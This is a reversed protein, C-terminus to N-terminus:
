GSSVEETPCAKTCSSNCGDVEAKSVPDNDPVLDLVSGGSLVGFHLHSGTSYGTQDMKGVPTTPTVPDGVSVPINRLMHAFIITYTGGNSAKGSVKVYNGYGGGCDNAPDNEDATGSNDECSTNVETVTGDVMAYVTPNGSSAIDIGNEDKGSNHSGCSPRPGQTIRGDTPWKCDGVCPKFSCVPATPTANCDTPTGEGIGKGGQQSVLSGRRVQTTGWTALFPIAFALSIILTTGGLFYNTLFPDKYNGGGVSRVYESLGKGVAGLGAIGGTGAASLFKGFGNKLYDFATWVIFVITGIGPALFAALRAPLFKSLFALAGKQFAARSGAAAAGHLVAGAEKKAGWSLIWDLPSGGPEFHFHLHHDKHAKALFFEQVNVDAGPYKSWLAETYDEVDETTAQPTRFVNGLGGGRRYQSAQRNVNQIAKGLAEKDVNDGLRAAMKDVFQDARAGTGVATDWANSFAAPMNTLGPFVETIISTTARGFSDLGEKTGRSQDIVTAMRALDAARENSRGTEIAELVIEPNVDPNELMTQTTAQVVRSEEAFDQDLGTQSLAEDIALAAETQKAAEVRALIRRRTEAHIEKLSQSDIPKDLEKRAAKTEDPSGYLKKEELIDFFRKVKGATKERRKAIASKTIAWRSLEFTDDSAVPLRNALVGREVPGEVGLIAGPNDCIEQILRRAENTDPSLLKPAVEPHKELFDKLEQYRVAGALFAEGSITDDALSHELFDALSLPDEDAM